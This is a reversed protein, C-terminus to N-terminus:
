VISEEPNRSAVFCPSKTSLYPEALRRSQPYHCPYGPLRRFRAIGLEPPFQPSGASSSNHQSLNSDVSVSLGLLCADARLDPFIAFWRHSSGVQCSERIPLVPGMSVLLPISRSADM